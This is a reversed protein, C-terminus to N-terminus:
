VGLDKAFVLADERGKLTTYYDKRDGIQVFGFKEYLNIAKKNSKRVELFAIGIDKAKATDIAHQLLMAGYGQRQYDPHVGLNLIHSEAAQMTMIIFGLIIGEREAIWGAYGSSQCREFTEVTWPAVQTLNEIVLIQPFDSEHLTRIM